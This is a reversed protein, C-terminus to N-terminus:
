IVELIISWGMLAAGFLNGRSASSPFPLVSLGAGPIPPSLGLIHGWPAVKEPGGAGPWPQASCGAGAVERQGMRSLGAPAARGPAAGEQWRGM